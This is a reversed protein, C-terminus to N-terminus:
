SSCRSRLRYTSTCNCPDGHQTVVEHGANYKVWPCSRFSALPKTGLLREVALDSVPRSNFCARKARGIQKHTVAKGQRISLSVPRLYTLHVKSAAAHMWGATCTESALAEPPLPEFSDKAATLAAGKTGLLLACCAFAPPPADSDPLCFGAKDPIAEAEGSQM